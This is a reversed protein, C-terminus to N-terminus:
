NPPRAGTFRWVSNKCQLIKCCVPRFLYPVVCMERFGRIGFDSISHDAQQHANRIRFATRSSASIALWPCLSATWATRSASQWKRAFGSSCDIKLKQGISRSNSVDWSRPESRPETATVAAPIINRHFESLAIASMVRGSTRRTSFGLTAPTRAIKSFASTTTGDTSVSGIASRENMSDAVSSKWLLTKSSHRGASARARCGRADSIIALTIASPSGGQPCPSNVTVSGGRHLDASRLIARNRAADLAIAADAPTEM